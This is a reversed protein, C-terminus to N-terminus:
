AITGQTRVDVEARCQECEGRWVSEAKKAGYAARWAVLKLDVASDCHLCHIDVSKAPKRHPLGRM